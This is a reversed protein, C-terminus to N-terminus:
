KSIAQEKEGKARGLPDRAPAETLFPSGFSVQFQRHLVDGKAGGNLPCFLWVGSQIAGRVAWAGDRGLM